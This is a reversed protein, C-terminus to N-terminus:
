PEHREREWALLDRIEQAQLAHAPCVRTRGDSGCWCGCDHTPWSRIRPPERVADIAQAAHEDVTPKRPPRAFLALLVGGFVLLSPLWIALFVPWPQSVLWNVLSV